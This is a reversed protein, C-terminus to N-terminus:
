DLDALVVPLRVPMKARAMGDLLGIDKCLVEKYFFILANLAQNQTSASVRSETALSSLFRSVGAEDLKELPTGANRRLFREAWSAYTTETSPSFHKARIASRLDKLLDHIEQAAALSLEPKRPPAPAAPALGPAVLLTEGAFLQQLREVAQDFHPVSWYKEERHWRRGPVTKIKEVREPSYPLLIKLRGPEGPRIRIPEM